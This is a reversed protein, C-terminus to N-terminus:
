HKEYMGYVREFTKGDFAVIYVVNSEKIPYTCNNAYVFGVIDKFDSAKSDKGYFGKVFEMFPHDDSFKQGPESIRMNTFYSDGLSINTRQEFGKQTQDIIRLTYM